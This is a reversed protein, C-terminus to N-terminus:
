EVTPPFFMFLIFGTHYFAHYNAGVFMLVFSPRRVHVQVQQPCTGQLGQHAGAGTGQGCDAVAPVQPSDESGAAEGDEVRFDVVKKLERLIHRCMRGRWGKRVM